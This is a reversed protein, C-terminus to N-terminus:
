DILFANIVINPLLLRTADPSMNIHARKSAAKFYVPLYHM